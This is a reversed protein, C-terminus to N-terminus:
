GDKVMKLWCSFWIDISVAHFPHQSSVDLFGDGLGTLNIKTNKGGQQNIHSPEHGRFLWHTVHAAFPELIWPMNIQTRHTSASM